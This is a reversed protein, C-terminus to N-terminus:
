TSDKIEERLPGTCLQERSLLEGEDNTVQVLGPYVVMGTGAQEWVFEYRAPQSFLTWGFQAAYSLISKLNDSWQQVKEKEVM